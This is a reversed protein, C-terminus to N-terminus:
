KNIIMVKAKELYQKEVQERAKYLADIYSLGETVMLTTSLSAVQANMERDLAEQEQVQKNVTNNFHGDKGRSMNERLMEARQQFTMHQKKATIGVKKEIARRERRNM